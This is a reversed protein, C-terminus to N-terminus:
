SPFADSGWFSLQKILDASRMEPEPDFHPLDLQRKRARLELIDPKHNNCFPHTPKGTDPDTVKTVAFDTVHDYQLGGQQLNVVGSCIHCRVAHDFLERVNIQSKDGTSYLRSRKPTPARGSALHDRGDILGVVADRLESSDGALAAERNLLDVFSQFFRAVRPTGKLGAGGKEQLTSIQSKLDFLIREFRGRHASFILKRQTIEADTGSFLWYIFGYFLVRTYQGKQNYWYFLPVISLSKSSHTPSTLHELKDHMASLLYDANKVITEASVAADQKLLQLQEEDSLAIQQYAILPIVELLYKHKQFYAPAVMFPVNLDSVPLRYPPVFLCKYISTARTSFSTILQAVDPAMEEEAPEPWYHGREGGNAICMISRAYSSKRYEILNSEWPDLPQGSRNIRLFSQEASKYDGNEWQVYLTKHSAVMEQYFKAKSFRIDGMMKKPADGHDALRSYEQFAQEYDAFAGIERHVLERTAQAVESIWAQDRRAYYSDAKDGWDDLMWARIVSLRHAGDLVYIFTNERNHWLIISPIIRGRVVSDLFFICQEPSWANTERQFDPKRILTFWDRRIDEYRVRPDERGV